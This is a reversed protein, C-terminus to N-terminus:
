QPGRGWPLTLRRLRLRLAGLADLQRQVREADENRDQSQYLELAQRWVTRAREHQGLAAHPHGLYDLTDACDYSSDLSRFLGLAQQYREIALEHHGTRHEIYGLSDLYNARSHPSDSQCLALAAWCHTRATEYDGLHAAFWGMANLANAEWGWIPQDLTRSLALARSAHHLGQRYDGRQECVRMYALHVHAQGFLDHHQEALALARNLNGIAEEHRWLEALYRGLDSHARVLL